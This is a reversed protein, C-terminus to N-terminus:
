LAVGKSAREAKLRAEEIAGQPLTHRTGMLASLRVFVAFGTPTSEGVPLVMVSPFYSEKAEGELHVASQTLAYTSAVKPRVLVGRKGGVEVWCGRPLTTALANECAEGLAGLRDAEGPACPVRVLTKKGVWRADYPPLPARVLWAKDGSTGYASDMEKEAVGRWGKHKGKCVEVMAGLELPLARHAEVSARWATDAIQKLPLAGGALEELLLPDRGGWYDDSLPAQSKAYIADYMMFLTEIDM